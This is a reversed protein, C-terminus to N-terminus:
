LGQEELLVVMLAAVMLRHDNDRFWARCPSVPTEDMKYYPYYSINLDSNFPRFLELIEQYDKSKPQKHGQWIFDKGGKTIYRKEDILCLYPYGLVDNEDRNGESWNMYNILRKSEKM